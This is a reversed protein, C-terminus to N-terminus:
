EQPQPEKVKIIMEAEAFVAEASEIIEAGAALYDSDDFGIGTGALTEVLVRHGHAVLEKAGAPTMGVRYEHNKIERPIGIIM